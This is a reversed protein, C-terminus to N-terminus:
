FRSMSIYRDKNDMEETRWWREQGIHLLAVVFVFALLIIGGYLPIPWIDKLEWRHMSYLSQLYLGSFMLFISIVFLILLFWYWLKM